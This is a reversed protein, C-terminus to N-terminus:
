SRASVIVEEHSPIQQAAAREHHVQRRQVVV